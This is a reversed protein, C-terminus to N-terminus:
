GSDLWHEREARLALELRNRVGLRSYLRSLYAQVSNTKVGLIRGIEAGTRSELVLGVVDRERRTLQVTQGM